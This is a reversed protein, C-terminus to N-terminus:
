YSLRNLKSVSWRGVFAFSVLGRSEARVSLGNSKRTGSRSMVVDPGHIGISLIRFLDSMEEM